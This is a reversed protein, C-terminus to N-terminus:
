ISENRENGDTGKISQGGETGETHAAGESSESQDGTGGQRSKGTKKDQKKKGAKTARGQAGARPDLPTARAAERLNKQESSAAMNIKKPSPTVTFSFMSMSGRASSTTGRPSTSTQVMDLLGTQSGINDIKHESREAPAPESRLSVNSASRRVVVKLM